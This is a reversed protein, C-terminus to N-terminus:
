RGAGELSGTTQGAPDTVLCTLERDGQEWSEATPSLWLVELASLEYPMGVFSEFEALCEDEVLQEIDAESPLEEAEITASHFAESTHPEECDVTPVQSVVEGTPDTALCDGVEVAFVTEEEAEPSTTTSEEGGGADEDDDDGCAGAALGLTLLLAGALARTATRM